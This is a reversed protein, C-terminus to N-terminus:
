NGFSYGWSFQAVDVGVLKAPAVAEAVDALPREALDPRVAAVRRQGDEAVTLSVDAPPAGAAAVELDAVAVQPRAGLRVVAVAPRLVRRAIQRVALQLHRRLRRRGLAAAEAPWPAPSGSLQPLM